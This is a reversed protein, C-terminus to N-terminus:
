AYVEMFMLREDIKSSETRCCSSQSRLRPSTRAPDDSSSLCTPGPVNADTGGPQWSRGLKGLSGGVELCRGPGVAVVTRATTNEQRSRVHAFWARAPQGKGTTAITKVANERAIDQLGLLSDFFTSRSPIAPAQGQQLVLYGCISAPCIGADPM